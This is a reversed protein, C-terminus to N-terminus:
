LLYRWAFYAAAVALGIVIALLVPSPGARVPADPITRTPDEAATRSAERLRAQQEDWGPKIPVQIEVSPGAREFPETPLEITKQGPPAPQAALDVAVDAAVEAAIEEDEEKKLEDVVNRSM